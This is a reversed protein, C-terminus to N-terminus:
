GRLRDAAKILQKKFSIIIPNSSNMVFLLNVIWLLPLTFRLYNDANQVAFLMLSSIIVSLAGVIFSIRLNSCSETKNESRKGILAIFCYILAVILFIIFIYADFVTKKNISYVYAFALIQLVPFIRFIWKWIASFPSDSNDSSLNTQDILFMFVALYMVPFFVTGKPVFPLRAYVFCFSGCGIVSVIAQIITPVNFLNLAYLVIFFVCEAIFVTSKGDLLEIRCFVYRTFLLVALSILASIRNKLAKDKIM